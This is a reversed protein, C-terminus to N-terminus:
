YMNKRKTDNSTCRSKIIKSLAQYCQNGATTRAQVYIGCDNDYSVLSHFRKFEYVEQYVEYNINQTKM